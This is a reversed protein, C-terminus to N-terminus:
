EMPPEIGVLISHGEVITVVKHAKETLGGGSQSPGAESIVLVIQFPLLGFHEPWKDAILDQKQM